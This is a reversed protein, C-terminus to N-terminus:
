EGACAVELTMTALPQAVERKFAEAVPLGISTGCNQLGLNALVAVSLVGVQVLRTRLEATGGRMAQVRIDLRQSPPDVVAPNRGLLRGAEAPVIEGAIMMDGNRAYLQASELRVEPSCRARLTELIRAALAAPAEYTPTLGTSVSFVHEGDCGIRTPGEIRTATSAQTQVATVVATHLDDLGPGKFMELIAGRACEFLQNCPASAEDAAGAGSSFLVALLCATGSAAARPTV